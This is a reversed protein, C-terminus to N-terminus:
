LRLTYNAQAGFFTLVTTAACDIVMVAYYGKDKDLFRATNLTITMKHSAVALREAATNHDTDATTDVLSGTVAVTNGLLNQKTIIATAFDDAAATAIKYWIDVSVLKAGLTQADNGPLPIPILVNLAEDAASKVMSVLYTALTPTWTGASFQFDTAPIFQILNADHVYGM